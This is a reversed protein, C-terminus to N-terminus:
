ADSCAPSTGHLSTGSAADALKLFAQRAAASRDHWVQWKMNGTVMNGAGYSPQQSWV